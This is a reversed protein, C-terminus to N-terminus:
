LDKQVNACHVLISSQMKKIWKPVFWLLCTQFIQTAIFFQTRSIYGDNAKRKENGGVKGEGLYCFAARIIRKIKLGFKFTVEESNWSYNVFGYALLCLFRNWEYANIKSPTTRFSFVRSKLFKTSQGKKRGAWQGM